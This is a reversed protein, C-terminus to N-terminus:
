LLSILAGTSSLNESDALTPKNIQEDAVVEKREEYNAAIDFTDSNLGPSINKKEGILQVDAFKMVQSDGPENELYEMKQVRNENNDLFREPQPTHVRVENDSSEDESSTINYKKRLNAYRARVKRKQNKSLVKGTQEPSSSKVNVNTIENLNSKPVMKDAFIIFLILNLHLNLM